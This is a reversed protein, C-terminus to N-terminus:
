AAPQSPRCACEEEMVRKLSRWIEREQRRGMHALVPSFLRMGGRLRMDWSWRMRTGGDVPEFTMAGDIEITDVRTSSALRHPRDFGTVEITMAVPSGAGDVVAHWRTGVGIPGDGIMEASRMTRNYTPENREDAVYEFVDDVPRHIVIEGEIHAV